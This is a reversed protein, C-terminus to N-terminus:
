PLRGFWFLSFAGGLMMLALGGAAFAATLERREKKFGIRTGLSKYIGSLKKADGTAFFKGGTTDAIQKLTKRDPPVQVTRYGGVPDPVQVVANQTGLAVTYIPVNQQKARQAAALPPAGTTSYGDSLLVISAPPGAKAGKKSKSASAKKNKDIVPRLTALSTDIANGIATGGGPRLTDLSAKVRDRDGTPPVLVQSTNNFTIFGLDVKEPTQGVFNKAADRAAILRTPKVDTAQMSASSDTVLMVTAKRKAVTVIDHPRAIATVLAVLALLYLLPPIQRRWSPTDTVVDALLDMNTFRVAFRRRRRQAAVYILATLPVFALALLAVPYDFSV